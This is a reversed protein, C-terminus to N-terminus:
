LTQLICITYIIDDYQWSHINSCMKITALWKQKQCTTQLLKHWCPLLIYQNELGCNLHLCSYFHKIHSDVEINFLVLLTTFNTVGPTENPNTTGFFSLAICLWSCHPLERKSIYRVPSWLSQYCIISSSNRTTVYTYLISLTCGLVVCCYVIFLIIKRWKLCKIRWQKLHCHFIFFLYQTNKIIFIVSYQPTVRTSLFCSNTLITSSKSLHCQIVRCLTIRPFM